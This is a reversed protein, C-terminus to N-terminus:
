RPLYYVVVIEETEGIWEVKCGSSESAFRVPVMTRDNIIIPAVDMKSAAGNISLETKNLWMIVTNSSTKLTIQGTEGDWDVAGGIKEILARIPLITRGNYIIPATGRGPDIEELIGDVNMDPCNLKMLIFHKKGVGVGLGEPELIEKLTTVAVEESTFELHESIDNWPDADTHIQAYTYYYITNPKVNVDVYKLTNIAFDTVSIGEVGSDVSRFVRYFQDGDAMPWELKVGTEVAEATFATATAAPTDPVPTLEPATAASTNPAPTLEPAPDSTTTKVAASSIIAAHVTLPTATFFATVIAAVILFSLTKRKFINYAM